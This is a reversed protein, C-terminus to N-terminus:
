WVFSPSIIACLFNDAMHIAQHLSLQPKWSIKITTMQPVQWKFALLPIARGNRKCQQEIEKSRSWFPLVSGDFVSGCCGGDGQAYAGCQPPKIHGRAQRWSRQENHSFIFFHEKWSYFLTGAALLDFRCPYLMLWCTWFHLESTSIGRTM